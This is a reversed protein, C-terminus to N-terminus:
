DGEPLCLSGLHGFNHLGFFNKAESLMSEARKKNGKEKLGTSKSKLVRKGTIKDKYSLIM